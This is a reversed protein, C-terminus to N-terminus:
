KLTQIEDIFKNTKNIDFRYTKMGLRKAGELPEENDDVFLCENANVQLKKCAEMYIEPQPKKYGIIASVIVTDFYSKLNIKKNWYSINEVGDNTILGTKVSRRLRRIYELLQTNPKTNVVYKQKLDIWFEKDKGIKILKSYYERDSKIEGLSYNNAVQWFQKKEQPSLRDRYRIYIAHTPDEVLVGGLDFLVAKIM